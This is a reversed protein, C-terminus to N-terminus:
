NHGESKVYAAHDEGLAWWIEHEEPYGPIRLPPSEDNKEFGVIDHLHQSAKNKVSIYSAIPINHENAQDYVGQLIERGFGQGQVAHDVIIGLEFLHKGNQEEVDLPVAAIPFFRYRWRLFLAQM